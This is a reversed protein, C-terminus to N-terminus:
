SHDQGLARDSAQGLTTSTSGRSDEVKDPRYQNHTSTAISYEYQKPPQDHDHESPVAERLAELQALLTQIYQAATFLTLMHRVIWAICMGAPFVTRVTLLNSDFGPILAALAELARKNNQRRNRDRESYELRRRQPDYDTM